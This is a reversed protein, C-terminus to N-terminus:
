FIVLHLVGRVLIGVFGGIVAPRAVTAVRPGSAILISVGVVDLPTIIFGALRHFEEMTMVGQQILELTVGMMATGGALYKTALPLVASGPLGVLNLAPTLAQELLTIAGAKKLLNVAFIALLLAPIANLVIQVGEQGGGVMVAWLSRRSKERRPTEAAASKAPEKGWSRTLVYYTLSAAALGGVLSILVVAGLNMGAAAMPFLVNAQPMALVMALTAAIRRQHTGDRDQISLTAIPGAFSILLLQLMAFVGSGPIGFIRLPPSLLRATWALIGRDELAKMLALMIVMVPLLLYLALDLATRGSALMIAVLEQLPM